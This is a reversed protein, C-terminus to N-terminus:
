LSVRLNLEISRPPSLLVQNPYNIDAWPVYIADFVNRVHAGLRYSKATYALMGDVVAYPALMVSNTGNAARRSVYGFGAGVEIPIRLLDRVSLWGNSMWAAANLPIRGAADEGFFDYRDGFRARLLSVNGGLEVHRTIDAKLSLEAGLSLQRMDYAAEGEVQHWLLKELRYVCAATQLADPVLESKVGVELQNVRSPRFDVLRSVTDLAIDGQILDHQRAYHAYAHLAPAFAYGIAAKYAAQDYARDLQGTRPTGLVHYRELDIAVREVKVTGTLSLRRTLELRDELTASLSTVDLRDDRPAVHGFLAPEPHEVSTSDSAYQGDTEFGVSRDFNNRSYGISLAARNKLTALREELAVFGVIGFLERHHHVYLRDRDILDTEPNYVYSEANKWNRKAGYHYLSVRGYLTDRPRYDVDLRDWRSVSDLVNDVVNYNRFRAARDVVTGDATDVVHPLPQAARARPVLPSGWYAPLDDRAYSVSLTVDLAHTPAWLLAGQLDLTESPSRQVWGASDTRAVSARYFLTDSLPARSELAISSTGYSGYSAVFNHEAPGLPDPRRPVFNIVGAAGAQGHHFMVPGKQVEVRELNYSSLPRMNLAAEGMSIGDYLVAVSNYSFGRMSFSYPEGPSEGSTVGVLNNTAEVVNKISRGTMTERAMLEVAAPFESTTLGMPNDTAVTEHLGLSRVPSGILGREARLLEVLSLRLSPESGGDTAPSSSAAGPAEADGSAAQPDPPEAAFAGATRLFAGACALAGM